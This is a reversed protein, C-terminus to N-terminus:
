RQSRSQRFPHERSQLWLRVAAVEYLITRGIQVRPPGQRLLHWRDITRPSIGLESALQERRLYGDLVRDSSSATVPSTSTHLKEPSGQQDSANFM